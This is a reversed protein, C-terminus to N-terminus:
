MGGYANHGQPHAQQQYQGQQSYDYYQGVGAAYANADGSNAYYYGNQDYYGATGGSSAAMQYAREADQYGNSGAYGYAEQDYATQAVPHASYAGNVNDDTPNDTDPHGDTPQGFVYKPREHLQPSGVATPANNNSAALAESPPIASSGEAPAAGYGALNM